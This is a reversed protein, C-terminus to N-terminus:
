KQKELLGIASQLRPHSIHGGERLALLLALLHLKWFEPATQSTVPFAGEVTRLHMFKRAM